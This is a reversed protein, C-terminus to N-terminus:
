RTQREHRLSGEESAAIIAEAEDAFLDMEEETWPSADVPEAAECLRDDAQRPILVSEQGAVSLPVIDGKVVAAIQEQTLQM